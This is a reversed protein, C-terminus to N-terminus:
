IHKALLVLMLLLNALLCVNDVCFHLLHILHMAVCDRVHAGRFAKEIGVGILLSAAIM